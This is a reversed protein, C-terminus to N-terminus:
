ESCLATTHFASLMLVVITLCASGLVVFTPIEQMASRVGHVQVGFEVTLNCFSFEPDLVKLLFVFTGVDTWVIHSAAGSSNLIEYREYLNNASISGDASEQFCTQYNEKSWASEISGGKMSNIMKEWSQAERVCGVEKMTKSYKYGARGHQEWLVFNVDVEKVFTEGDYVDIIPKFPESSQVSLPCGLKLLDYVVTKDSVEDNEHSIKRQQGSSVVYSFNKFSGCRTPKGRPIIRRNSPCGITVNTEAKLTACSHDESFAEVGFLVNIGEESAHNHGENRRKREKLSVTVNRSIVGIGHTDSFSEQSALSFTLHETNSLSGILRNDEWPEPILMAWAKITEGKDLFYTPKFNHLLVEHKPCKAMAPNFTLIIHAFSLLSLTKGSAAM